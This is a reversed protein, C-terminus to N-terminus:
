EGPQEDNELANKRVKCLAWCVLATPIITCLVGSVWIVQFFVANEIM